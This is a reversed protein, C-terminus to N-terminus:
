AFLIPRVRERLRALESANHQLLGHGWDGDANEHCAAALDEGIKEYPRGLKTRLDEPETWVGLIFVRDRLHEPVFELALDLLLLPPFSKVNCVFRGRLRLSERHRLVRRQPM